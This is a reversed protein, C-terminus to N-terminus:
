FTVLLPNVPMEKRQTVTHATHKHCHNKSEEGGNDVLLRQRDRERETCQRSHLTTWDLRTEELGLWDATSWNM